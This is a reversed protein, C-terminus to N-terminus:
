ISFNLRYGLSGEIGSVTAVLVCRSAWNKM